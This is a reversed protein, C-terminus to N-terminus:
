IKSESNVSLDSLARLKRERYVPNRKIQGREIKKEKKKM